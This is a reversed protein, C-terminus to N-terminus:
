AGLRDSFSILATLKHTDQSLDVLLVLSLRADLGISNLMVAHRESEIHGIRSSSLAGASIHQVIGLKHWKILALDFLVHIVIDVKRRKELSTIKFRSLLRLVLKLLLHLTQLAKVLRLVINKAHVVGGLVPIIPELRSDCLQLSM